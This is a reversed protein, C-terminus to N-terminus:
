AEWEATVVCEARFARWVTIEILVIRMYRCSNRRLIRRDDSKEPAGYVRIM